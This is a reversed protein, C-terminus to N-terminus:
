NDLSMQFGYSQPATLVSCPLQRPTFLLLPAASFPDPPVFLLYSVRVRVEVLIRMETVETEM